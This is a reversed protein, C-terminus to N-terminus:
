SKKMILIANIKHTIKEIYKEYLFPWKEQSNVVANASSNELQKEPIIDSEKGGEAGVREKEKEMDKLTKRGRKKQPPFICEIGQYKCNKCPESFVYVCRRKYQRCYDCAKPARTRKPAQTMGIPSKNHNTAVSQQAYLALLIIFFKYLMNM